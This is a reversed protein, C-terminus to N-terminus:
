LEFQIHEIDTYEVLLGTARTGGNRFYIEGLADAAIQRMERDPAGQEQADFLRAAHRPPLALTLHRMCADDSTGAAATFGFRARTDIVIGASTAATKRAKARIQPQWRKKVEAAMRDALETRPKKIQDRVYREVTRQSVGLLQAVVKTSGHHQKVLYRVRAGASKPIPRTFAGALAGHLAADITM